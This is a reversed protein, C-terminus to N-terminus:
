PTFKDFEQKWYHKSRKSWVKFAEDEHAQFAKISCNNVKCFHNILDQKTLNENKLMREGDITHLWLGAHKIKHCMNCLHHIAALKQVQKTDDYEWFEHAELRGTENGCIWCKRGEREFLVKKIEIWKSPNNTKKYYQYISSYWVTSPILEIILKFEEATM